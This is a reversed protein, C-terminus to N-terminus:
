NCVHQVHFNCKKAAKKIEAVGCRLYPPQGHKRGNKKSEGKRSFRMPGAQGCGRSRNMSKGTDCYDASATLVVIRHNFGAEM